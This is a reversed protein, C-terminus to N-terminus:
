VLKQFTKKLLRFRPVVKQLPDLLFINGERLPRGEAQHHPLPLLRVCSEMPPRGEARKLFVFEVDRQRSIEILLKRRLAVQVPFRMKAGPDGGREEAVEGVIGRSAPVVVDVGGGRDADGIQSKPLEREEGLPREAMRRRSPGLEEQSRRELPLVM